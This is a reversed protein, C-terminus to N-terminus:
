LSLSPIAGVLGLGGLALPDGTAAYVQYGLVVELSSEALGRSGSSALLYRFEPFDLVGPSAPRPAKSVRCPVSPASATRFLWPPASRAGAWRLLWRAPTATAGQTLMSWRLPDSVM